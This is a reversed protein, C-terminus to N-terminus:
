ILRKNTFIVMDRIGKFSSQISEGDILLEGVMAQGDSNSVEALKVYSPNKFDIM